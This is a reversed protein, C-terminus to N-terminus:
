MPFLRSIYFIFGLGQGTTWVCSRRNREEETRNQETRNQETRNQETTKSRRKLNGPVCLLFPLLPASNLTQTKGKSM